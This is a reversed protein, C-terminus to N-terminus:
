EYKGKVLVEKCRFCIVKNDVRQPNSKRHGFLYCYFEKLKPILMYKYKRLIM